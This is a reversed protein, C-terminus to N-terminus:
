HNFHAPALHLQAGGGRFIRCLLEVVESKKKLRLETIISKLLMKSFELCSLFRMGHSECIKKHKGEGGSLPYKSLSKTTPFFFKVGRFFRPGLAVAGKAWPNIWAQCNSNPKHQQM